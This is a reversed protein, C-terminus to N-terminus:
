REFRVSVVAVAFEAVCRPPADEEQGRARAGERATRAGAHLAPVRPRSSMDQAAQSRRLSSRASSAMRWRMSKCSRHTLSRSM